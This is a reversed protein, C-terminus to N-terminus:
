DSPIGSKTDTEEKANLHQSTTNFRNLNNKTTVIGIKRRKKSPCVDIPDLLKDLKM